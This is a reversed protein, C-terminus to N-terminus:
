IVEATEHRARGTPAPPTLSTSSPGTTSVVGQPAAGGVWEGVRLYVGLWGRTPVPTLHPSIVLTLHVAKQLKRGDKKDTKKQRKRGNAKEQGDQKKFIM